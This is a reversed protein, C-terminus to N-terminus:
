ARIMPMDKGNDRKGNSVPSEQSREPSSLVGQAPNDLYRSWKEVNDVFDGILKELQPLDLGNASVQRTLVVSESGPNLSLTAGATEQWRYNAELLRILVKERHDAPIEQVFSFLYVDDQPADYLLLLTITDDFQLLCGDNDDFHLSDLGISEGLTKLLHDIPRNENPM